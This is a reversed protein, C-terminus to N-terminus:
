FLEPEQNFIDDDDILPWIYIIKFVKDGAWSWTESAWHDAVDSAGGPKSFTNETSKIM